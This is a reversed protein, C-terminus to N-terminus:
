TAFFTSFSVLFKLLLDDIVVQPKLPLDVLNAIQDRNSLILESIKFIPSENDVYACFEDIM